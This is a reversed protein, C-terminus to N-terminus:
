SVTFENKGMNVGHTGLITVKYVNTYAVQQTCM